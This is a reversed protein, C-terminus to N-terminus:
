HITNVTKKIQETLLDVQGRIKPDKRCINELTNISYLVTSHNRGFLRGIAELSLDTMKRCLYIAVNRCLVLNKRRSRSRLDDLSVHYYRCVVEQISDPTCDHEEEVLDKLTEEALSFDIPRSLLKSKASLSNLGSELQRVDKKLKQAMFDLVSEKIVLNQERARLELIRMRTDYDPPDINSILSTSLRSAFQRGLRPIDRPLRPSTFVVTKNNDILCDLAYTLEAQVKEKGSLFNIEELVLVDCMRRYKNKFEEICNNKLSYVMENTFDEATLYFIRRKMDHRLVQHGIAQSLHSKGLGPASLIFLSNTNIEQGRAIAKAASYAYQNADGVIFRDFTFRPNFRLPSRTRAEIHPLEYQRQVSNHNVSPKQQIPLVSLEVSEVPQDPGQHTKIASIITQYYNDRIWTLFFQNPCGLYLKCNELRLPKLPDIWTKFNNESLCGALLGRTEAWLSNM